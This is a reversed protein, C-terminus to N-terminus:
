MKRIPKGVPPLSEIAAQVPDKSGSLVQESLQVWEATTPPDGRHARITGMIVLFTSQDPNTMAGFGGFSAGGGLGPFIGLAGLQATVQQDIQSQVRAAQAQQQLGAVQQAIGEPIKEWSTRALLVARGVDRQWVTWLESLYGQFPNGGGFLWNFM